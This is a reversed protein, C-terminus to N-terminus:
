DIEVPGKGESASFELKLITKLYGFIFIASM